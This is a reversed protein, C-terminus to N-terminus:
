NVYAAPNKHEKSSDSKESGIFSCQRFVVFKCAGTEVSFNSTLVLVKIKSTPAKVLSPCYILLEASVEQLVM